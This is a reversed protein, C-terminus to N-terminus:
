HVSISVPFERQLLKLRCVLADELCHIGVVVAGNGEPFHLSKQVAALCIPNSERVLSIRSSCRRRTSPSHNRDVLAVPLPTRAPCTDTRAGGYVNMFIVIVSDFAPDRAEM